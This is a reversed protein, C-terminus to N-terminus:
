VKGWAYFTPVYLIREGHEWALADRAELEHMVEPRVYGELDSALMKWEAEQFGIESSEDWQGGLVGAQVDHLGAKKFLSKIKRGMKPDAGKRSLAEGQLQGITALEDPFDIRAGYDPEALALVSGGPKTVRAMEMIAELPRYVWLLYFHCLSISFTAEQFPLHMGDACALRFAGGLSRGFELGRFDIDIGFVVGQTLTVIDSLIAGSGCGVELVSQAASFSAKEFLFRRVSATWRAQQLYRNHWDKQSLM